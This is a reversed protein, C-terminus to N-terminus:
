LRIVSSAILVAENLGDRYNIDLTKLAADPMVFKLHKKIKMRQFEFHM